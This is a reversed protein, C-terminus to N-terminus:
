RPLSSIRVLSGHWRTMSPLIPQGPRQRPPSATGPTTGPPHPRRGQRATSIAPTAWGLATRLTTINAGANASWTLGTASLFVFVALLITGTTGHLWVTRARGSVPRPKAAATQKTTTWKRRIRDIWLLLGGLAIVWLWTAALESYLRGPEGLNLSRHLNSIWTRPPLAGSGGYTPLDGRIEASGPDVFLTRYQSERLAPDAFLVRTTDEKGPAPRVTVPAVGGAYDTAAEVQASLPLPQTVAPVHLERSYLSQELQPTMAYLGGTVAAILLFPGALIGADFHIRPLFAQFWGRDAPQSGTPGTARPTEQEAAPPDTLLIMTQDKLIKPLRRLARGPAAGSNATRCVRPSLPCCLDV